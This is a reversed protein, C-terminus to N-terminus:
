SDLIIGYKKNIIRAAKFRALCVTKMMVGRIRIGSYPLRVRGKISMTTTTTITMLEDDGDDDDDDDDTKTMERVM